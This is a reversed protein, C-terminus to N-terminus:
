VLNAKEEESIDGSNILKIKLINMFLDQLLEIPRKLNEGKPGVRRISKYADRLNMAFRQKARKDLM